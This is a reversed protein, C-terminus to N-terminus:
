GQAPSIPSCGPCDAPRQASRQHNIASQTVGGLEPTYPTGEGCDLQARNYCAAEVQKPMIYWLNIAHPAGM